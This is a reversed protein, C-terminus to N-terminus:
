GAALYAAQLWDCVEQDVQEPSTLALRHTVSGSGFSGAPQLRGVPEVGPLRLGLDLRSPTSPAALAFHVRRGFVIYSQRPKILVDQGLAKVVKVLKDYIPRLGTKNGSFHWDVLAEGAPLTAPKFRLASWTEDLSVQMVAQYGAPEVARWLVDRNLDSRIAGTKKPYAIWLMGGPALRQGTMSLSEDLEAMQEVFILVVEFEGANSDVLATLSDAFQVPANLVQLRMGPKIQLKQSLTKEPM